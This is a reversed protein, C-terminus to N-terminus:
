SVCGMFWDAGCCPFGPAAEGDGTSSPSPRITSWGTVASGIEAQVSFSVRPAGLITGTRERERERERARGRGRGRERQRGREREGERVREGERERERERERM